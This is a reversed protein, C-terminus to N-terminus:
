FLTFVNKFIITKKLSVSNCFASIIENFDPAGEGIPQRIICDWLWRGSDLRMPYYRLSEQTRQNQTEEISPTAVRTRL